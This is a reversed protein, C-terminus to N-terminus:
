QGLTVSGSSGIALLSLASGFNTAELVRLDTSQCLEESRPPSTAALDRLELLLRAVLQLHVAAAAQRLREDLVVEDVLVAQEGEGDVEARPLLQEAVAHVGRGQPEELVVVVLVPTMMAVYSGAPGACYPEYASSSAQALSEAGSM